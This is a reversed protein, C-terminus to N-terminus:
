DPFKDVRIEIEVVHTPRLSQNMGELQDLSTIIEGMAGLICYTSNMGHSLRGGIQAASYRLHATETAGTAINNGIPIPNDDKLLQDLTQESLFEKLAAIHANFNATMQATYKEILAKGEPSDMAVHLVIYDQYGWHGKLKNLVELAANTNEELRAQTNSSTFRNGYPFNCHTYMLYKM